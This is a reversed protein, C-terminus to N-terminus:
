FHKDMIEAILFFVTALPQCYAKHNAPLQIITEYRFSIAFKSYGGKVTTKSVM